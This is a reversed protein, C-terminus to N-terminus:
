TCLQLVVLLTIIVGICIGIISGLLEARHIANKELIKYILARSRSHYCQEADVEVGNIAREFLDDCSVEYKICCYFGHAVLIVVILIILYIANQM